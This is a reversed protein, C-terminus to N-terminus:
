GVEPAEASLLREMLFAVAAEEPVSVRKLIVGFSQWYMPETPDLLIADRIHRLARVPDNHGDDYAIALEHQLVDYWPYLVAAKELIKVRTSLPAEIATIALYAESRRDCM